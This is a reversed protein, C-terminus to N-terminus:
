RAAEIRAAAVASPEPDRLKSLFEDVTPFGSRRIAAAAADLDYETRRHEVDPGLLLWYAGPAEAFPFGVSGANAVRMGDVDHLFQQHSHGCVVVREEVGAVAERLLPEPTLLTIFDEDGRPSGHVFRVPGLGSVDVTVGAPRTSLFERESASLRQKSWATPEDHPEEDDALERDCNGRVFLAPDGLGRLRELSDHPFPGAAVDGGVVITDVGEREVEALVAELAPLNGHVDYLAAVRRV